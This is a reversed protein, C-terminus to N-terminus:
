EKTFFLLNRGKGQNPHWKNWDLYACDLFQLTLNASVASSRAPCNTGIWTQGRFFDTRSRDNARLRLMFWRRQANDLYASTTRGEVFYAAAQWVITGTMYGSFSINMPLCPYTPAIPGCCVNTATTSAQGAYSECFKSFSILNAESCFGIHCSLCLKECTIKKVPHGSLDIFRFVFSLTGIRISLYHWTSFRSSKPLRPECKSLTDEWNLTFRSMM